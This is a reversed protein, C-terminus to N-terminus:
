ETRRRGFGLFSAGLPFALFLYLYPRKLLSSGDERSKEYFIMKEKFITNVFEFDGTIIIFCDAPTTSNASVYSEPEYAWLCAPELGTVRVLRTTM